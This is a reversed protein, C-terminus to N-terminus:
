WDNISKKKQRPHLPSSDEEEEEKESGQNENNMTTKPSQNAKIKQRNREHMDATRHDRPSKDVQYEPVGCIFVSVCLPSLFFLFAYL